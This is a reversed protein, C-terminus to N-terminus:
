SFVSCKGEIEGGLNSSVCLLQHNKYKYEYSVFTDLIPVSLFRNERLFYFFDDFIILFVTLISSIDEIKSGKQMREEIFNVPMQFSIHQQNVYKKKPIIPTLLFFIHAM